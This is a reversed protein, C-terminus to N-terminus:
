YTRRSERDTWTPLLRVQRVRSGVLSRAPQRAAMERRFVDRREWSAQSDPTLLDWASDFSGSRILSTFLEEHAAPNATAAPPGQPLPEVNVIAPAPDANGVGPLPATTFREFDQTSRITFLNLLS